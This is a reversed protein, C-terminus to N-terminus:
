FRAAGGFTHRLGLSAGQGSWSPLQNGWGFGPTVHAWGFSGEIWYAEHLRLSAGAAAHPFFNFGMGPWPVVFAPSGSALFDVGSDAFLRWHERELFNWRLGPGVGVTTRTTQTMGGLRFELHNPFHWDRNIRLERMDAQVEGGQRNLGPAPTFNEVSTTWANEDARALFTRGSSQAEAEHGFARRLGLSLGSGQWTPNGACFCEGNSVHAFQFASEIWYSQAVRVSVGGGARLFFDNVTGRAPWPRDFLLFDGQTQVFARFRSFQLFNWRALPGFGLGAANSAIEPYPDTGSPTRYGHARLALGDFQFEWGHRLHAALSITSVQLDMDRNQRDFGPQPDYYEFDSLWAFEDANGFVPIRRPELQPAPEPSDQAIVPLCLILAFWVAAVSAPLGARRM